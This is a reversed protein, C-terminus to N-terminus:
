ILFTAYVLMNVITNYDDSSHLAYVKLIHVCFWWKKITLTTLLGADFMGCERINTTATELGYANSVGCTWEGIFVDFLMDQAVDEPIGALQSNDVRTQFTIAGDITPSFVEPQLLVPILLRNAMAALYFEMNIQGSPDLGDTTNYVVIGDKM